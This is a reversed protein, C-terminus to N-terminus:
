LNQMKRELVHLSNTHIIALENQMALMAKHIAKLFKLQKKRDKSACAKYYRNYLVEIAKNYDETVIVNLM